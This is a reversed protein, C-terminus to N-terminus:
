VSTLVGALYTDLSFSCLSSALSLETTLRCSLWSSSAEKWLSLLAPIVAVEGSCDHARFSIIHVTSPVHRAHLFFAM